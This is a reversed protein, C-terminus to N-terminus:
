AAALRAVRQDLSLVPEGLTLTAACDADSYDMATIRLDVGEERVRCLYGPELEWPMVTHGTLRDLIPRRVTVRGAMPPSVKDRLVQGGIRIASSSSGRGDPLTIPDADRIRTGLEPVSLGISAATVVTTQQKGVADTWSVLIRNCLDIESGTKVYGDRNSVVYRPITPWARYNFRHRGDAGSELIEWLFDPEWMSLGDLVQQSKVGELFTLQTIPWTTVDVRAISPDCRTLLRGLLDEVVQSARVTNASELATSGTLLVGYRDMRQGIVSYDVWNTWTSDEVVNTAGGTRRLRFGFVKTAAPITVPGTGSYILISGANNNMTRTYIIGSPVALDEAYGADAKGSYFATCRIGGLFMDSREFLSNTGASLDGTGIASGSSIQTRVRTSTTYFEDAGTNIDAPACSANDRVFQGLDRDVYVLARSEDSALIMGGLFTLDYVDGGPGQTVGPNETYGEIVTRGTRADSIYIRDAPGLDQFTDTPLVLKMSGGQHGGPATKTFKLDRVARTVIRDTFGDNIRVSLAGRM